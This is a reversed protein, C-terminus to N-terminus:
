MPTSSRTTTSTNRTRTRTRPQHHPTQHTSNSDRVGYELNEPTTKSNGNKTKSKTKLLELRYKTANNTKKEKKPFVIRKSNMKHYSHSHKGLNSSQKRKSDAQENRFFAQSFSLSLFLRQQESKQRSGLNINAAFEIRNESKSEVNAFCKLQKKYPTLPKDRCYEAASQKRMSSAKAHIISVRRPFSAPSSSLSLFLSQNDIKQPSVLNIKAAFAVRNGSESEVNASCKLQM